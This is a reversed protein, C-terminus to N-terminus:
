NTRTDGDWTGSQTNGNAYVYIGAGSRRDEKWNGIWFDNNKWIYVGFGHRNGKYTEGIYYNGDGCEVCEFKFESWNGSSPYEDTPKGNEFSGYYLLNGREDYLTGKNDAISSNDYRGVFINADDKGCIYYSPGCVHVGYGHREGNNWKGFYVSQSEKWYYMGYGQCDNNAMGGKYPDGGFTRSPNDVCRKLIARWQSGAMGRAATATASSSGGQTAAQNVYFSKSFMCTSGIWIEYRYTGTRYGNGNKNGWGVTIDFDNRKYEGDARLYDDFTYSGNSGELDGDPDYIKVRIDIHNRAAAVNNNFIVKAKLYQMNTTLRAGYETILEGDEDANAFLLDTITIAKSDPLDSERVTPRTGTSGSSPAPTVTKSPLSKNMLKQCASIRANCTQIQSATKTKLKAQKYNAIAQTCKTKYGTNRQAYLTQAEKYLAEGKNFFTQYTGQATATLVLSLMFLISLIKRM